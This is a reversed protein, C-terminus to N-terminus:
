KSGHTSAKGDMGYSDRMLKMTTSYVGNQAANRNYTHTVEFILYRGSSEIDWPEKQKEVFSQKNQLRIDVKDGACVQANGSILVVCTQNKLLEYRANGQSAFQKKWDAYETPNPSGDKPEPSAPDPGTFWSEHDVIQSIFRTPKGSLELQAEPIIDQNGLRAMRDYSDKIKYEYESYEGTSWDYYVITAALKGKRMDKMLNVEGNFFSERILFKEDDYDNQNAVKEVYPGWPPLFAFESALESGEKACLSDVAFFNYGRRTEWFFFGASGKLKNKNTGTLDKNESQTSPVINSKEPVSEFALDSCIDFPRARMGTFKTSFKPKERFFTKQTQIDNRLMREIIDSPNGKLERDIRTYENVLAEESIMALVYSQLNNKVVRNAINWIKLRYVVSEEFVSSVDFEVIEGGSIPLTNILGASDVITATASVYPLSINEIYEFKSVLAKIDVPKGGNLPYLKVTNFKFDTSNNFM